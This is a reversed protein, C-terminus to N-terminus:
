SVASSNYRCHAPAEAAETAAPVEAPAETPQQACGSLATVMMLIVVILNFIFLKSKM